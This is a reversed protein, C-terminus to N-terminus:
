VIDEDEYKRTLEVAESVAASTPVDEVYLIEFMAVQMITLALKSIRHLNWGISFEQVYGNLEEKKEGVGAMVSQIYIRQKTDPKDGYVDNEQALTNYYDKAFRFAMTEDATDKTYNIGYVLHVVIERANTRTM